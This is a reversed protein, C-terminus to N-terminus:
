LQVKKKKKEYKRKVKYRINQMDEARMLDLRSHLDITHILMHVSNWIQTKIHIGQM